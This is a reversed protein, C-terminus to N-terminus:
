FLELQVVKPRTLSKEYERVKDYLLALNRDEAFAGSNGIYKVAKQCAALKCEVESAYGAHWEKSDSVLVDSWAAGFGGGGMGTAYDLGFVWVGNGCEAYNIRVFYGYAGGKVTLDVVDPNICIDHDNFTYKGFTGQFEKSSDHRTLACYESWQDGDFTKNCWRVRHFVEKSM